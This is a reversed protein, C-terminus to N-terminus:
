PLQVAMGDEISILFAMTVQDVQDPLFSVHGDVYAVNVGGPHRSRPASSFYDLSGSEEWTNCPMRQLQAEAPAVCEYLVDLNPGQNNPPQSSGLHTVDPNYGAGALEVKGADHLDFALQSAGNWGIAWAGREDQPRNRTLVESLMLTASTGEGSFVGHTHPRHSTLAARFRAQFEVHYPSVWAAYNGKGVRKGATLRGDQLFRGKAQDSPCLFVAPQAAQPEASSQALASAGFDFQQHLNGQEAYPLILVMWSLMTGSKPDYKRQTTDVIASAPYVRLTDAYNTVALAMQKLHNQCQIRRAAERAAQVAPLLLSVVVGIIAIVVLLEVLTFGSRCPPRNSSASYRRHSVGSRSSDLFVASVERRSRKTQREELPIPAASFLLCSGGVGNPQSGWFFM